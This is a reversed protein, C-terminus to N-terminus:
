KIVVNVLQKFMIESVVIKHNARLMGLNMFLM